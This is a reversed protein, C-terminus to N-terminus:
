TVPWHRIGCFETFVYFNRPFPCIRHSPEFNRTALFVRTGLLFIGIQVRKNKIM